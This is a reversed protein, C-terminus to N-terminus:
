SNKTDTENPQAFEVLAFLLETALPFYPPYKVVDAVNFDDAGELTIYKPIYQGAEAAIQTAQPMTVSKDSGGKFGAAQLRDLIAFVDQVEPMSLTAILQEAVPLEKNKNWDPVYRKKLSFGSKM